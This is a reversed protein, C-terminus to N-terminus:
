SEMGVPAAGPDTHEERDSPWNPQLVHWEDPAARILAEFRVALAQTLNEVNERLRGEREVPLPADIVAIHGYRGDFYVAAPILAAGTRLAMAAPGAPMTTREGFFEVSIGDGKIDRDSLLCVVQNARLAALVEDGAGSGLPIVTMGLATRQEVFFEYLEPPRVREAVVTPPYGQHALWAGAFEWGGVHPLALIVGKGAEVGAVIHQFGDATFRANLIAPDLKAENPLRFFECWYRAYSRFVGRVLGALEAGSAGTIRAQHRETM